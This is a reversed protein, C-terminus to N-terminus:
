VRGEAAEEAATEGGSFRVLLRRFLGYIRDSEKALLPALSALILVYLAAFPQLIAALRGTLALNAIIISFEGRALLTFSTNLSAVPSLRARRGVIMGAVVEGALSLVVAGAALWVAGGLSFPDISLWPKVLYAHVGARIGALRDKREGKATLFIVPNLETRPNSRLTRALQYGDMGPMRIDSVILDPVRANVSVLAEVGSRATAVEYGEERLTVAVARLLKAEDDVVLLRKAM